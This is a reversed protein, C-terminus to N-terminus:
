WLLPILRRRVKEAYTDYGKLERRLFREEYVIRLALLGIPVIALLAAAYSELWLPAGILLLAAGTYMPHRIFSYVGTAVVTQRREELHRVVPAAFPNERLALTMIWWGAIFLILGVASVLTGPRPLLHFRFVDLPIFVLVGPFAAIFLSVIIKDVLPQGPQVPPKFREDLVAPNNRYISVTSAVAGALVVGMFIWARRWELTGAPLFLLGGFIALNLIVGVILKLKFMYAQKGWKWLAATMLEARLM